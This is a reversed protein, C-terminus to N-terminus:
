SYADTLVVQNKGRASLKMHIHFSPTNRQLNSYM